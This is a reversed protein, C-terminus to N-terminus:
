KLLSAANEYSLTMLESKAHGKSELDTLKEKSVVFYTFSNDASPAQAGGYADANVSLVGSAVQYYWFYSAGNAGKEEFPLSQISSGNKKYVLVLGKSAVTGTISSDQLQKSYVTYKDQSQSSWNGLSKWTSASAPAIATKAQNATTQELDNKKCATVLLAAGMVLALMKHKNM